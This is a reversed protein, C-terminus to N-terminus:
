SVTVTGKMTPHITCHYNFTGAAPFTVTTSADPAVNGCDPGSDFTVTHATSDGNTWSVTSGVSASMTGPAFAFNAM